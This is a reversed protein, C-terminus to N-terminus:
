EKGPSRKADWSGGTTRGQMAMLIERVEQPSSDSPLEVFDEGLHIALPDHASRRDRDQRRVLVWGACIVVALFALFALFPWQELMEKM